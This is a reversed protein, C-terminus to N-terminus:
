IVMVMRPEPVQTGERSRLEQATKIDGKMFAEVMDATEKPAINAVVSIFGKGKPGKFYIRYKAKNMNRGKGFCLLSTKIPEGLLTIVNENTKVMEVSQKYVEHSKLIYEIFIIFLLVSIIILVAKIIKSQM